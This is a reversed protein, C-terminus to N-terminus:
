TSICIGFERDPDCLPLETTGVQSRYLSTNCGFIALFDM